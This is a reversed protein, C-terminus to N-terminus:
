AFGGSWDPASPHLGWDDLDDSDAEPAELRAPAALHPSPVYNARLARWFPTFVRYYGGLGDQAGLTGDAPACQLELRLAMPRSPPKSNRTTPRRRNAMAGTGCVVSRASTERVLAKLVDEARGSRLLLRGGRAEIAAALARLSKDLWWQSAGGMPRAGNLGTERIYVCVVPGGSAVAAALAANNALRLDERFWVICPPSITM